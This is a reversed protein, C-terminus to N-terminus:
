QEEETVPKETGNCFPCTVPSGAPAEVANRIQMGCVPLLIGFRTRVAEHTQRHLSNRVRLPSAVSWVAAALQPLDEVYIGVDVSWVQTDLYTMNPFTVMVQDDSGAMPAIRIQEVQESM